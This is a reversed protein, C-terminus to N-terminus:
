LGQRRPPSFNSGIGGQVPVQFIWQYSVIKTSGELLELIGISKKVRVFKAFIDMNSLVYVDGFVLVSVWFHHSPFPPSRSFIAM